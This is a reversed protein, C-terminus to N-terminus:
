ETVRPWDDSCFSSAPLGDLNFLNPEATNSWGYRVAVPKAIDPHSVLLTKGDVKAEAPLYVRDIGAIEIHTLPENSIMLGIGAHEFLVRITNGEVVQGAFLPGSCVLDINYDRALAWLALRDGVDRKNRPHIDRRNGIDLTVVMGTNDVKSLTQFQAERLEAGSFELGYNYPALQVFYFPFDEQGWATRWDRIMLPFIERYQVARNVNSEGQYWIVGKIAYETLPHLMGNYLVTPFKPNAVSRILPFHHAVRYKWPGPLGIAEAAEGEPYIRFQRSAAFMGGDEHTNVIRMAVLCENETVLNRPIKFVRVKDRYNNNLSARVKWGNFYAVDREDLLGLELLLSKGVWSDPIAIRKRVWLVGEVRRLDPIASRQALAGSMIWASDNLSPDMWGEALGTNEKNMFDKQLAIVRRISDRTHRTMEFPDNHFQDLESLQTSFDGQSKLAGTSTWAESPTGGWSSNVLGVPIGLEKHLRKGFFYGVASFDSSTEPTCRSWIGSVDDRPSSAIRGEVSFLRIGPYDAQPIEAVASQAKTLTWEMNSQGSCIWVDGLLIDRLTITTDAEIIVEYPGGEETTCAQVLWNGETDTTAEYNHGDWSTQVSIVDGPSAWGWINVTSNRQLVMHDGILSPLKLDSASMASGLFLGLVLLFLM